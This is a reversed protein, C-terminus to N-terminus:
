PVLRVDDSGEIPTGNQLTGSLTAETMGATWASPNNAFQCVLDDFGDGNVDDISCQLKGNPLERVPLGALNLSSPDIQAVDFDAGGLIAVPITGKAKPNIPNADSGPKIDVTVEISAPEAVAFPSLSTVTGCILHNEPDTSTTCDVWKGDEYHLLKLRSPSGRFASAEYSVCVRIEGEYNATTTIEYYVPPQGLRFGTPAPPGQTSSSVSSYGAVVVEDFQVTVAGDGLGDDLVVVVDQGTDTNQPLYNGRVYCQTTIGLTLFYRVFDFSWRGPLETSELMCGLDAALGTWGSFVYGPPPAVDVLEQPPFDPPIQSLIIVGGPAGDLIAEAHYPIDMMVPITTLETPVFYPDSSKGALLTVQAVVLNKQGAHEDYRYDTLQVGVELTAPGDVDSPTVRCTYNGFAPGVRIIRCSIQDFSSDPPEYSCYEAGEFKYPGTMTLRIRIDQGFAPTLLGAVVIVAVLVKNM